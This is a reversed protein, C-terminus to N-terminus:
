RARQFVVLTVEDDVDEFEAVLPMGFEYEEPPVDVLNTIMRPGEELQVVVVPWPAREQFYPLLPPHAVTWTYLTARGSVPSWTARLSGCAYCGLEPPFRYAGCDDCRQVVLRRQKAASWYPETLPTIEPLPRQAIMEQDAM